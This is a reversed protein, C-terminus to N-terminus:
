KVIPDSNHNDSSSGGSTRQQTEKKTTIGKFFYGLAFGILLGILLNM